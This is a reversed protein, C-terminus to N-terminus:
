LSPFAATDWVAPHPHSSRRKPESRVDRHRPRTAQRERWQRARLLQLRVFVQHRSSRQHSLVLLIADLVDVLHEAGTHEIVVQIQGHYCPHWSLRAFVAGPKHPCRLALESYRADSIDVGFGGRAVRLFDGITPLVPGHIVNRSM